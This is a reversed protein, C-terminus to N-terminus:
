SWADRGVLADLASHPCSTNRNINVTLENSEQQSTALTQGTCFIDNQPASLVKSIVVFLCYHQLFYVTINYSRIDLHMCPNITLNLPNYM